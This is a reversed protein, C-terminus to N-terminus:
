LVNYVYCNLSNRDIKKKKKKSCKLRKKITRKGALTADIINVAHPPRQLILILIMNM